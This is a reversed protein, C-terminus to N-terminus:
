KAKVLYWWGNNKLFLFDDGKRSIEEIPTRKKLAEVKFKTEKNKIKLTYYYFGKTFGTNPFNEFTTKSDTVSFGTKKLYDGSPPNQILDDIDTTVKQLGRLYETLRSKGYATQMDFLTYREGTQTTIIQGGNFSWISKIKKKDIYKQYANWLNKAVQDNQAKIEAEKGEKKLQHYRKSNHGDKHPELLQALIENAVPHVPHLPIITPKKYSPYTYQYTRTNTVAYVNHDNDVFWKVYNKNNFIPISDQLEFNSDYKLLCVIKDKQGFLYIDGDKKYALRRFFSLKKREFDNSSWEEWTTMEPHRDGEISDKCSITVLLVIAIILFSLYQM